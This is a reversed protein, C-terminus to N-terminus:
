STVASKSPSLNPFLIPISLACMLLKYQVHTWNIICVCCAKTYFPGCCLLVWFSRRINHQKPQCRPIFGIHEVTPLEELMVENCLVPLTWLVQIFSGQKKRSNLNKLTYSILDAILIQDNQKANNTRGELVSTFPWSRQYLPYCIRASLSLMSESQIYCALIYCRIFPAVQLKCFM